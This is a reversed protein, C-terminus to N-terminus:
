LHPRGIKDKCIGGDKKLKWFVFVWIYLEESDRWWSFELSRLIKGGGFSQCRDCTAGVVIVATM